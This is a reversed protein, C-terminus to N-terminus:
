SYLVTLRHIAVHDADWSGSGETGCCPIGLANVSVIGSSDLALVTPSSSDFRFLSAKPRDGKLGVPQWRLCYQERAKVPPLEYLPPTANSFGVEVRDLFAALDPDHGM